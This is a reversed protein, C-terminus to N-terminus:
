VEEGGLRRWPTYLSQKVKSYPPSNDAPWTKDGPFPGGTGMTCSAPHAGSGTQVCLSSHLRTVSFVDNFLYGPQRRPQVADDYFATMKSPVVKVSGDQCSPQRQAVKCQGSGTQDLRCKVKFRGLARVISRVIHALVQPVDRRSIQLVGTLHRYPTLCPLSPTQSLREECVELARPQHRSTTVEVQRVAFRKDIGEEHEQLIDVLHRLEQGPQWPARQSGAKDDDKGPSPILRSTILFTLLRSSASLVVPIGRTCETIPAKLMDKRKDTEREATVDGSGRFSNDHFKVSQQPTESFV